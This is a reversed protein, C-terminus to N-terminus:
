TGTQVICDKPQPAISRRTECPFTLISYLPLFPSVADTRQRLGRRSRYSSVYLLLRHKAHKYERPNRWRRSKRSQQGDYPFAHLCMLFGDCYIMYLSDPSNADAATHISVRQKIQPSTHICICSFPLCVTNQVEHVEILLSSVLDM